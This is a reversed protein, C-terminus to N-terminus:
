RLAALLADEEKQRIIRHIRVIGTVRREVLIEEGLTAGFFRYTSTGVAGTSRTYGRRAEGAFGQQGIAAGFSVVQGESKGTREIRRPQPIQLYRGPRAVPSPAPKSGTASGTSITDGSVTGVFGVTGTAVGSTTTVGGVTGVQEEAGSATGSSATTGATTGFFGVTGTNTFSSTTAGSSTGVLAITGTATGTGTTLGSSAGVYAVSGIATASSVSAGATSGVVAKVGTASGASTNAGATTGLAGKKGTASGASTSVGAVSGEADSANSWTFSGWVAPSTASPQWRGIAM